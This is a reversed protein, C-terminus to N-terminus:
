IINLQGVSFVWSGFIMFQSCIEVFHVCGVVLRVLTGITEMPDGTSVIVRQRASASCVQDSPSTDM